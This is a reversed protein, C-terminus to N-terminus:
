NKEGPKDYVRVRPFNQFNLVEAISRSFNHIYMELGGEREPNWVWRMRRLKTVRISDASSYLNNFEENNLKRQRGREQIWTSREAGRKELVM